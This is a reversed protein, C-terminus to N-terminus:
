AEPVTDQGLGKGGHGAGERGSHLLCTEEVVAKRRSAAVEGLLWQGFGTSGYASPAREEESGERLAGSGLSLRAGRCHGFGIPPM